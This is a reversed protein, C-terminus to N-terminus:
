GNPAAASTADKWSPRRMGARVARYDPQAEVGVITWVTDAELRMSTCERSSRLSRRTWIRM